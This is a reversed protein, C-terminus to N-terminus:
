KQNKHCLEETVNQNSKSITPRHKNRINTLTLVKRKACHTTIKMEPKGSFSNALFIEVM